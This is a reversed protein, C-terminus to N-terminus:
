YSASAVSRGRNRRALLAVAAFATAGAATAGPEPVPLTFGVVMAENEFAVLLHDVGDITAFALGESDNCGGLPCGPV